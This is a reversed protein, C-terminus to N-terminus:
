YCVQTTSLIKETRLYDALHGSFQVVLTMALYPLASLYGTKDLKFDLVDLLLNYKPCLIYNINM